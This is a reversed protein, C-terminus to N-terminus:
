NSKAELADMEENVKVEIEETTYGAQKLLIGRNSAIVTFAEKARMIHEQAKSIDSTENTDLYKILAEAAMLDEQAASKFVDLYTKEDDNTAYNFALSANQFYQKAEVCSNYFTLADASGSSFSGINTMFTNHNIYLNEFDSWTKQDFKKIRAQVQEPTESSNSSSNSPSSAPSTPTSSMVGIMLFVFVALCIFVAILCGRGKKKPQPPTESNPNIIYSSPQESGLLKTKQQDFEEQTLAGSDLLDKLKKIEDAKSFDDNINKSETTKSSNGNISFLQRQITKFINDNIELLSRKGDKFQIAVYYAGVTKASVGALLGVPGLLLSGVAARGVASTASKSKSEDLVEYLEVTDKNIYIKKSFGTILYVQNLSQGVLKGSYDGSVVQNKAGM